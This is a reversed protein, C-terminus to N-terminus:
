SASVPVTTLLFPASNKLLCFLFFEAKRAVLARASIVLRRLALALAWTILGRTISVTVKGVASAAALNGSVRSCRLARKQDMHKELPTDLGGDGPGTRSSCDQGGVGGGRLGGM